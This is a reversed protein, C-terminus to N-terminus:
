KTLGNRLMEEWRILDDRSAKLEASVNALYESGTPAPQMM